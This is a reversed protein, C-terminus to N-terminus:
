NILTQFHTCCHTRQNKILLLQLQLRLALSVGPGLVISVSTFSLSPACMAIKKQVQRFAIHRAETDACHM